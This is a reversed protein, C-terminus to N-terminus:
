WSIVGGASASHCERWGAAQQYHAFTEPPRRAIVELIEAQKRKEEKGRDQRKVRDQRRNLQRVATQGEQNLSKRVRAM